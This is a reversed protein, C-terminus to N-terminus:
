HLIRESTPVRAYSRVHAGPLRFSEVLFVGLAVALGEALAVFAPEVSDWGLSSPKKDAPHKRLRGERELLGAARLRSIAKRLPAELPSGRTTYLINKLRDGGSLRLTYTEGEHGQLLYPLRSTDTILAADHKEAVRQMGADEDLDQILTNQGIGEWTREAMLQTIISYIITINSDALERENRIRKTVDPAVLASKLNCLYAASLVVTPLLWFCLVRRQRDGPGPDPHAPQALLLSVAQLAAAAGRTRRGHLWLGLWAAAAAAVTACWMTLTLPKTLSSLGLHGRLRLGVPIVAVLGDAQWPFMVFTPSFYVTQHSSMLALRCDWHRWRSVNLSLPMEFSVHRERIHHDRQLASIVVMSLRLEEPTTASTEIIAELDADEDPSHPWTVCARYPSMTGWRWGSEASCRDLETINPLQAFPQPTEYGCGDVLNYLRTDGSDASTVALRVELQCSVMVEAGVETLNTISNPGASLWVLSRAYEPDEELVKSLVDARDTAVFVLLTQNGYTGSYVDDISVLVGTYQYITFPVGVAALGELFADDVWGAAAVVHLLAFAQQGSLYDPLLSLACRAEASLLPPPLPVATRLAAPCRPAALLAAALLWM